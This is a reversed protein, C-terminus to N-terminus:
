LESLATKPSVLVAIPAMTVPMEIKYNYVCYVISLWWIYIYFAKHLHLVTLCLHMWLFSSLFHVLFYSPRFQSSISFAYNHTIVFQWTFPFSSISSVRFLILHFKHFFNPTSYFSVTSEIVKKMLATSQKYIIRNATALNECISMNATFELFNLYYRGYYIILSIHKIKLEFVFFKILFFVTWWHEYFFEDDKIKLLVFNRGMLLTLMFFIINEKVKYIKCSYCFQM